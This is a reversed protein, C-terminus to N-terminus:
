EPIPMGGLRDNAQDNNENNITNKNLSYNRLSAGPGGGERRAHGGGCVRMGVGSAAVCVGGRSESAGRARGGEEAPM